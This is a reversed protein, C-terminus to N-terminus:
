SLMLDPWPLYKNNEETTDHGTETTDLTDVTVVNLTQTETDHDAETYHLM